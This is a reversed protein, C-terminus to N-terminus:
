LHGVLNYGAVQKGSLIWTGKAEFQFIESLCLRTSGAVIISGAVAVSQLRCAQSVTEGWIDNPSNGAGL